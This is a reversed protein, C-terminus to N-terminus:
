FYSLPWNCVKETKNSPRPALSKPLLKSHHITLPQDNILNTISTVGDNPQQQPSQNGAVRGYMIIVYYHSTKQNSSSSSNIIIVTWKKGGDDTLVLIIISGPLAANYIFCWGDCSVCNCIVQALGTMSSPDAIEIKTKTKKKKKKSLLSISRSQPEESARKM